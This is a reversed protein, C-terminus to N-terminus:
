LRHRHHSSSSPRASIKRHSTSAAAAFSPFYQHTFSFSLIFETTVYLRATPLRFNIVTSIGKESLRLGRFAIDSYVPTELIVDDRMLEETSVTVWWAKSDKTDMPASVLTDEEKGDKEQQGERGSNVEKHNSRRYNDEEEEETTRVWVSVAIDFTQQADILPRVVSGPQSNLLTTNEYLARHPFRLTPAVTLFFLTILYLIWGVVLAGLLFGIWFLCTYHSRAKRPAAGRGPELDLRAPTKESM